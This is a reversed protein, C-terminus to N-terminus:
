RVPCGVGCDNFTNLIQQDLFNVSKLGNESASTLKWGPEEDICFLWSSLASQAEVKEGNSSENGFARLCVAARFIM